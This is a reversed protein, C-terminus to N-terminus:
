LKAQPMLDFSSIGASNYETGRCWPLGREVWVEVSPVQVSVSLDAESNQQTGAGKELDNFRHFNYQLPTANRPGFLRRLQKLFEQSFTGKIM